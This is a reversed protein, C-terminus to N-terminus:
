LVGFRYQFFEKPMEPHQLMHHYLCLLLVNSEEFELDPADEVHIIHHVDIGKKDCIQCKHHFKEKVYDKFKEWRTMEHRGRSLKYKGHKTLRLSTQRSLSKRGCLTSCYRSKSLIVRECFGCERYRYKQDM